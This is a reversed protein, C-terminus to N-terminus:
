GRAVTLMQPSRQNSAELYESQLSVIMLDHIDETEITCTFGLPEGLPAAGVVVFAALSAQKPM